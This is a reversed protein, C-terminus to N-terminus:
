GPRPRRLALRLAQQLPRVAWGDHRSRIWDFLRDLRARDGSPRCAAFGAVSLLLAANRRSARLDGPLELCGAYVPSAAQEDRFDFFFAQEGPESLTATTHSTLESNYDVLREDLVYLAGGAALLRLLPEVDFMNGVVPDSRFPMLAALSARRALLQVPGGILNSVRFVERVVAPGEWRGARLKLLRDYSRFLASGTLRRRRVTCAVLTPDSELLEVQRAVLTPDARDDSCWLKVFEGTALEVCRTFNGQMGVNEANVVYRFRDPHERAFRELVRRTGDTSANDVVLVDLAPYTQALASAITAPLLEARNYTPIAVTVPPRVM